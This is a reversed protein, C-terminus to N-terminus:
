GEKGMKKLLKAMEEDLTRNKELAAFPDEAVEEEAIESFARAEAELGEVRREMKEFKAFIGEPSAGGLAEAFEKQTKAAQARAALHSQKTRAEDLKGKLTDFQDRLQHSTTAAQTVMTDYSSAQRDWDIKKELAKKALDPQGASLALTAKEEWQCAQKRAEDRQRGLTQEHALAQALAATSRTLAEEMEVIMQKVMKEPDEMHELMDNVNAKFIDAMRGFIGM